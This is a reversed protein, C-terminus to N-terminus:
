LDKRFVRYVEKMEPIYKPLVKSWGARGWTELAICGNAKAFDEVITLTNHQKEFGNGTFLIIHLTKHRTYNLIETLGAGTYVGEEEIVWAQAQYNLLKQLYDILTSEGQGHDMAKQFVDSLYPWHSVVEERTLLKINM